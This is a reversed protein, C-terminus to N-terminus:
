PARNRRHLVWGFLIVGSWLGLLFTLYAIVTASTVSVAPDNM